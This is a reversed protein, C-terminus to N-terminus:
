KSRRCEVSRLKKIIKAENQSRFSSLPISPLVGRIAQEAEKQVRNAFADHAAATVEEFREIAAHGAFGTSMEFARQRQTQALHADRKSNSRSKTSETIMDECDYM